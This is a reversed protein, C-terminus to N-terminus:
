LFARYSLDIDDAYMFCKEDFGELQNYLERKMVMFAGVLIDVKGTQNEDLHQAYYENFLASKPFMKYLGFIKTFAVWPTPIGRKSEPLFNGTGDILKCGVIGVDTKSKAFALVKEFTDEAVVTDPNLICIYEGKAEKVAINNGKPFGSNEKNEILKINPFRQKMMACSDDSSNNDIVIIEADLNQIAKQVSLVCLELFHRVNYNLIIVSLQM